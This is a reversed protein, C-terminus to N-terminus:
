LPKCVMSKRFVHCITSKTYGEITEELEFFILFKSHLGLQKVFVFFHADFQTSILRSM